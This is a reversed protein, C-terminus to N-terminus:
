MNTPFIYFVDTSIESEIAMNGGILVLGNSAAFERAAKDAEDSQYDKATVRICPNYKYLVKEIKM